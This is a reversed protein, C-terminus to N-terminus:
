YRGLWLVGVALTLLTIPVGLRGYDWFGVRVGERRASEAVILNAVSGVLTLNGALTSAMAVVLWARAPDAFDPIFPAILLVAPVNSLLNSLVLVLVSLWAVGANLLPQLVLFLRESVGTEQLAGTVIFLGGFLVLLDWNLRAFVKDSKVRRTVLLVAAAVLAAAAVPVGALFAMLMLASVISAKILLARQVEVEPLVVPELRARFFEQPYGAAIVLVVVVLGILAVPALGQMFTLYSLGSRMGIILNQPNGTITAVSGVNASTALAILYPVAPRKLSRTIGVVLPTLMLVVTDNLFLASLVGSTFVLAALLGLPSGARGVVWRALFRFFGGLALLTNIIMLSLLLLMTGGDVQAWAEEVSLVGCAVLSAAGLFAIAARSMRVWPFRGLAVGLITTLAIILSLWQLTSLLVGELRGGRAM